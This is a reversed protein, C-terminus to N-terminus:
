RPPRTDVGGPETARPRHRAILAATVTMSLFDLRVPLLWKRDGLPVRLKLGATFPSILVAVEAIREVRGAGSPLRLDLM